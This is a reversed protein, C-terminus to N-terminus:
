FFHTFGVTWQSTVENDNTDLMILYERYEAQILFRDSLYGRLGAGAYAVSSTRQPSQVLTANPDVWVVGGGITVFPSVRWAPFLIDGVGVTGMWGTSYEGLLQSVDARAYLSETLMYAGSVMITDAGDLDGASVSVEWRHSTRADPAPGALKVEDGEGTLTRELQDRHVWGEYGRDTRVKIWDTRQRLLEVEGGRGVVQTVPYGRGPGSHLDIYPDQVVVMEAAGAAGGLLAGALAALLALTRARRM